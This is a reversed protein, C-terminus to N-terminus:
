SWVSKKGECVMFNYFNMLIQKINTSGQVTHKTPPKQFITKRWAGVRFHRQRKGLGNANIYKWHNVSKHNCLINQWTVTERLKKWLKLVKKEKGLGSGLGNTCTGNQSKGGSDREQEESSVMIEEMQPKRKRAKGEWHTCDWSMELALIYAICVKWSSM